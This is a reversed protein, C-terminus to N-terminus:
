LPKSDISVLLHISAPFSVRMGATMNQEIVTNNLLEPQFEYNIEGVRLGTTMIVKQARHLSLNVVDPVIYYDPPAGRSVGLSM